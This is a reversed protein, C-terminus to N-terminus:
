IIVLDLYADQRPVLDKLSVPDSATRLKADRLWILLVLNQVIDFTIPM